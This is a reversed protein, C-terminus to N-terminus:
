SSTCNKWSEIEEEDRDLITLLYHGDRVAGSEAVVSLFYLNDGAVSWEENAQLQGNNDLPNEFDPAKKFYLNQEGDMIFMSSDTITDERQQDDYQVSIELKDNDTDFINLNGVFVEGEEITLLASSRGAYISNPYVDGIVDKFELYEGDNRSYLNEINWDDYSTASQLQVVLLQKTQIQHLPFYLFPKETMNQDQENTDEENQNTSLKLFSLSSWNGWGVEGQGIVAQTFEGDLIITPRSVDVGLTAGTAQTLYVETQEAPPIRLKPLVVISIDDGSFPTPTNLYISENYEYDTIRMQATLDRLRFFDDGIGGSVTDSGGNVQIQEFVYDQGTIVDDGSTGEILFRENSDINVTITGSETAVVFGGADSTSTLDLTLGENLKRLYLETNNFNGDLVDDGASWHFEIDDGYGTLNFYDDKSTLIIDIDTSFDGGRPDLANLPLTSLDVVQGNYIATWPDLTVGKFVVQEDSGNFLVGVDGTPLAFDNFNIKLNSTHVATAM